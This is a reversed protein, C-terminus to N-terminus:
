MEIGVFEDIDRCSVADVETTEEDEVGEDGGREELSVWSGM